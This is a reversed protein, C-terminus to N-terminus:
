RGERRAAQGSSVLPRVVLYHGYIIFDERECNRTLPPIPVYMGCGVEKSIYPLLKYQEHLITLLRKKEM